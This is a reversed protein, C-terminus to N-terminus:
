SYFSGEDLDTVEPSFELAFFISGKILMSPLM